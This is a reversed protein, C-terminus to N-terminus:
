VFFLFVDSPPEGHFGDDGDECDTEDVVCGDHIVKDGAHRLFFSQGSCFLGRFLFSEAPKKM